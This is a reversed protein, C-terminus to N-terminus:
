HCIESSRCAFPQNQPSLAHLGTRNHSQISQQDSCPECATGRWCVSAIHVNLLHRARVKVKDAPNKLIVTALNVMATVGTGGALLGAALICEM